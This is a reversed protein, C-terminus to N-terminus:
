RTKPLNYATNKKLKGSLKNIAVLCTNASTAQALKSTPRDSTLVNVQGSICRTDKQKPNDPAYWAGEDIAVIGKSINDTLFAGALLRGRSNYVEVTDGHKVGLDSADNTNIYVPERGDIKIDQSVSTNDLQSHLRHIPHPTILQYPYKKAISSQTGEAPQIWKPYGPCDDYGFSAVKESYLEIKGSPTPLHDKIPNKRFDAYRVFQRNEAPTDNEVYGAEWFEDFSVKPRSKSYSWRIWEDITKGGTFKKEFGLRASLEKFIWFDDKAEFLPSILQKMAWLFEIGYSSGFGIDNREFTTTTPLVIDSYKATPTWWPENTVVCDVKRFGEICKNVDPQHGIPTVGASYILKVNPYTLKRGNYDITKGPNLLMDAQRSAPILTHVPNRGQSILLPIGAGTYPTGAGCHHMNFSFGGGPLGIQGIMSALAVLSWHFQEGHQVRQCAWSGTLTTKKSVALRSLEKIKEAPVGCIKEAWEADKVIGDEEGKLYKLFVSFGVTYKDIFEKNYIEENYLTHCMGLIMAVDTAAKIPIWESGLEQTSMNNTPDITIFQIGRKKMKRFWESSSHNPVNYGVKNTKFPDSGWMILLETNELVVERSTQLSYVEIDGVIYPLVHSAAGASFDGVIDTYGGFLGLMKGQLTAPQQVRGASSWRAYTTKFISENGYENKVRQMAEAVLDLAQEWSVQVFEEAGRLHRNDSGNLYSKRVYPHQIRNPAYISDKQAYMLDVPEKDFESAIFKEIVGNKVYAKLPGMHTAHTIINVENSAAFLNPNSYLATIAAGAIKIFSRRDMNM